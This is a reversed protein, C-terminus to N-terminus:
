GPGSRAVASAEAGPSGRRGGPGPRGPLTPLGHGGPVSVVVSVSSWPTAAAWLVSGIDDFIGIAQALTARAAGRQSLRRQVGGLVLLTRGREQPLPSVQDHLRLAQTLDAVAVDLNGHAAALAGRCRATLAATV